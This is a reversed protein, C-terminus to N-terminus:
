SIIIHTVGTTEQVITLLQYTTHQTNLKCNFVCSYKYKKLVCSNVVVVVVQHHGVYLASVHRQKLIRYIEFCICNHEVTLTLM